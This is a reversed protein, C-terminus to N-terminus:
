SEVHPNRASPSPVPPADSTRIDSDSAQGIAEIIRLVLPHGEGRRSRIAHIEEHVGEPRGLWRLGEVLAQTNALPLVHSAGVIGANGASCGAGLQAGRELVLVSAGSRALEAAVCVGIAGGGVVVVDAGAIM